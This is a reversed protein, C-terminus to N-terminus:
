PFTTYLGNIKGMNQIYQSIFTVVVAFLQNSYNSKM